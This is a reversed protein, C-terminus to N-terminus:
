GGSIEVCEAIKNKLDENENNLDQLNKQIEDFKKKKNKLSCM